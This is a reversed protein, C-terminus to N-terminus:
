ICGLKDMAMYIERGVWADTAAYRVASSNLRPLSWNYTQRSKSLRFGLLLAALLQSTTLLAAVAVLTTRPHKM